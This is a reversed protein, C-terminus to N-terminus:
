GLYFALGALVLFILTHAVERYGIQRVQLPREYRHGVAWLAKATVPIFAIPVFTPFIPIIVSLVVVVAMLMLHYVISPAGYKLRERAPGQSARKHRVLYRVHYVSGSFFLACLLYLSITRESFGGSAVYEAAMAALTLGLIGTIEGVVTFEKKQQGFLLTLMGIILALLGILLLDWLGSIFILYGGTGISILSYIASWGLVEIKRGKGKSPRLYVNWAHRAIYGFTVAVLLLLGEVGLRGGVFTGLAYCSILISWAGHQKPVTSSFARGQKTNEPV